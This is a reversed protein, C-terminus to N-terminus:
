AGEAIEHGWVIVYAHHKTRVISADRAVDTNARQAERM